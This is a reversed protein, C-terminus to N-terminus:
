PTGRSKEIFLELDALRIRVISTGFRIVPIESGMLRYAETRSVNLYRAVDAAKLLPEIRRTNSALDTVILVPSSKRSPNKVPEPQFSASVDKWGNQLTDNM